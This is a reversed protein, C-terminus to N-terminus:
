YARRVQDDDLVSAHHPSCGLPWFRFQSGFSVEDRVVWEECSLPLAM